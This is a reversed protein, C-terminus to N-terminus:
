KGRRFKNAKVATKMINNTNYCLTSAHTLDKPLCTGGFGGKGDPGPVEWHTGLTKDKMFYEKIPQYNIDYLDCIEKIDNALGVNVALAANRYIKICSAEIATTERIERPLGDKIWDVFHEHNSHGIVVEITADVVDEKWYNERLFEPMIICGTKAYKLAQDPGITSRIVIGGLNFTFKEIVSDIISTDLREKGNGLPELDTPVCIFTYEIDSWDEITYGKAPDEIKITTEPKYWHLFYETAQGVFGYGVIAVNM